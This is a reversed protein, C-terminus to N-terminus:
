YDTSSFSGDQPFQIIDEQTSLYGKNSHLKRPLFAKTFPVIMILVTPAQGMNSVLFRSINAQAAKINFWQKKFTEQLDGSKISSSKQM